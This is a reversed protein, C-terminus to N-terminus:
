ANAQYVLIPAQYVKPKYGIHRDQYTGKVSSLM